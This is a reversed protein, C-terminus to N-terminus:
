TGRWGTPAATVCSRSQSTTCPWPISRASAAAARSAASFSLGAQTSTLPTRISWDHSGRTIGAWYLNRVPHQGLPRPRTYYRHPNRPILLAPNALAEGLAKWATSRSSRRWDIPRSAANARRAAPRAHHAAAREHCSAPAIPAPRPGNVCGDVHRHEDDRARGTGNGNGNGNANANGNAHCAEVSM